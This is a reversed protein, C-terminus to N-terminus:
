QLSVAQGWRFPAKELGPRQGPSLEKLGEAQKIPSLGHTPTMWDKNLGFIEDSAPKLELICEAQKRPSRSFARTMLSPWKGSDGLGVAQHM